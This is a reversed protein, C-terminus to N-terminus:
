GQVVVRYEGAPPAIGFRVIVRDADPILVGPFVQEGTPVSYVSVVVDPTGLGHLLEYLTASTALTEAYKMVGSGFVPPLMSADLRGNAGLAPIKGAYAAGTSVEAPLEAVEEGTAVLRLIRHVM